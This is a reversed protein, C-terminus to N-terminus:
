LLLYNLNRTNSFTDINSLLPPRINEFVLKFDTTIGRDTSTKPSLQKRSHTNSEDTIISDSDFNDRISFSVNLPVPNSSIEVGPDISFNLSSQKEFHLESESTVNSDPDINDLISFPPNV